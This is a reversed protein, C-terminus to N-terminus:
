LSSIAAQYDSFIEGGAVVHKCGGGDFAAPLVRLELVAMRIQRSETLVCGATRESPVGCLIGRCSQPQFVSQSTEDM